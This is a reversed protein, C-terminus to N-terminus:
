TNCATNDLGPWVTQWGMVPTHQGIKLLGSRNLRIYLPSGAWREGEGGAWVCVRTRACVCVWVGAGAADGHCQPRPGPRPHVRQHVSVAEGGVLDGGALVESELLAEAVTPWPPGRRGSQQM